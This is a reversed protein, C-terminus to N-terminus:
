NIKKYLYINLKLDVIKLGGFIIFYFNSIWIGKLDSSEQKINQRVENKMGFKIECGQAQAIKAKSRSKSRTTLLPVIPLSTDQGQM